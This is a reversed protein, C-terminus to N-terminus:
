VPSFSAPPCFFSARDTRSDGDADYSGRGDLQVVTSRVVDQDAGANAVPATNESSSAAAGTDGDKDCGLPALALFLTTTM